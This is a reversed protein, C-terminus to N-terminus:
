KRRRQRRESDDSSEDDSPDDGEEADPENEEDDDDLGARQENKKETEATPAMKKVVEQTKAEVNKVTDKLAEKLRDKLAIDDPDVDKKPPDRHEVVHYNNVENPATTVPGEESMWGRTSEEGADGGAVTEIENIQLINPADGRTNKRKAVVKLFKSKGQDMKDCAFNLKDLAPHESGVVESRREVKGPVCTVFENLKDDSGLRVDFQFKDTDGQPVYLTVKKAELDREKAQIAIWPNANSDVTRMFSSESGDLAKTPGNGDSVGPFQCARLESTEDCVIELKKMPEAQWTQPALCGIALLWIHLRM